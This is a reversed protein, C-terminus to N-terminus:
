LDINLKVIDSQFVKSELHFIQTQQLYIIFLICYARKWIMGKILGRAEPGRASIPTEPQYLTHYTFSKDYITNPLKYKDMMIQM